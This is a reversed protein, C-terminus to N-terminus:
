QTTTTTTTTAPADTSTTTQQQQETPAASSTTPATENSTPPVAAATATNDTNDSTTTTTTAAPQQEPVPAADTTTTTASPEQQQQQQQQQEQQQQSADNNTVSNDNQATEAAPQAASEEQPQQQSEATATATAEETNNNNDSADATATNQNAETNDAAPQQQEQAEEEAPAAVAAQQQQDDQQQEEQQQPEPMTNPRNGGISVFRIKAEGAVGDDRVPTFQLRLTCNADDNSVFYVRERSITEFDGNAADGRQWEIKSEGQEGGSYEEVCELKSGVEVVSQQQGDEVQQQEGDVYIKLSKLQPESPDVRTNSLVRIPSGRIGDERVPTVEVEIYYGVHEVSLAQTKQNSRGFPIREGANPDAHIARAAASKNTNTTTQASADNERRLFWQIVPAAPRGGKYDFDVMVAMGEQLVGAISLNSITPPGPLIFNELVCRSPDGQVGDKSVPRYEVALNHFVDELGPTYVNSREGQIAEYTNEARNHRFWQFTSDGEEGGTYETYATLQEGEVAPGRIDLNTCTPVGSSVIDTTM